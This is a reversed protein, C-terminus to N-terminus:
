PDPVASAEETDQRAVEAPEVVAEDKDEASTGTVPSPDPSAVNAQSNQDADLPSFSSEDSVSIAANPTLPALEVSAVPEPPEYDDSDSLDIPSQPHGAPPATRPEEEVVLQVETRASNDVAPTIQQSGLNDHQQLSASTLPHQQKPADATMEAGEELDGFSTPPEYPEENDGVSVPQGADASSVPGNEAIEGEDDSGSIDMVDEALEGSILSQNSPAETSLATGPPSHGPGTEPKAPLGDSEPDERIVIGTIGEATSQASDPGAQLPLQTGLVALAPPTAQLLKDLEEQLAHKNDTQRQVQTELDVQDKNLNELRSKLNRLAADVSSLNFEIEVRRDQPQQELANSRSDEAPKALPPIPVAPEVNKARQELPIRKAMTADGSSSDGTARSTPTVHVTTPESLKRTSNSADQVISSSDIPKPFSFPRGPTGPTQARSADQRMKRRQEMESIKRNMREIEEERARLGDSDKKTPTQSGHPAINFNDNPQESKNSADNLTPLQNSSNDDISRSAIVLDRSHSVDLDGNSSMHVDSLGDESDDAEDDSIEFVVSSDAKYSHSRRIKSPVPEIFDAATPRKRPNSNAQSLTGQIPALTETATKEQVLPVSKESTPDSQHVISDASPTHADEAKTDGIDYLGGQAPATRPAQIAISNQSQPSSMFLGPLSLGANQSQFYAHQPMTQVLTLNSSNSLARNSELDTSQQKTQSLQSASAVPAPARAATSAEDTAPISERRAKSRNKLEEIKRRALETQERKKAETATNASPTATIPSSPLGASVKVTVNNKLLNDESPSATIMQGQVSPSPQQPTSQSVPDGTSKSSITAPPAKGAKAAQLRAIYDKRDITKPAAKPVPTKNITSTTSSQLPKAVIVPAASPKANSLVPSLTKEKSNPFNSGSGRSNNPKTQLAPRDALAPEVTAKSMFQNSESHQQPQGEEGIEDSQTNSAGTRSMQEQRGQVWDMPYMDTPPRAEKMDSRPGIVATNADDQGTRPEPLKHPLPHQQVAQKAPKFIKHRALAQQPADIRLDPLLRNLLDPHIHEELLQAYGINHPQLQAVARRAGDQSAKLSRKPQNRLTPHSVQKAASIKTRIRSTGNVARTAVENRQQFDRLDQGPIYPELTKGNSTGNVKPSPQHMSQQSNPVHAGSLKHDTAESLEGDELDSKSTETARRSRSRSNDNFSYLSLPQPQSDQPGLSSRQNLAINSLGQFGKSGSYLGHAPSPIPPDFSSALASELHHGNATPAISDGNGHSGPSLFHSNANFACNNMAQDHQLTDPVHSQFGYAQPDHVHAVNTGYDMARQSSDYRGIYPYLEGTASPGFNSSM